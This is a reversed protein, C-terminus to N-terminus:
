KKIKIEVETNCTLRIVEIIENLEARDFNASLLCDDTGKKLSLEETYYTNLIEVVENLPSQNFSFVGTKWALHNQNSVKSLSFSNEDILLEDGAELNLVKDPELKSQVSVRGTVVSVKTRENLSNVNFSTGLVRIIANKTEVIFPKSTDRAIDFFAEGQLSVTRENGTFVEPFALETHSNLSVFSGDILSIETKDTYFHADMQALDSGNNSTVYYTGLAAFVAIAAIAAVRRYIRSRGISKNRRTEMKNLAALSNFDKVKFEKKSLWLQQYMHYAQPNEERFIAVEAEEPESSTGEFHNALQKHLRDMDIKNSVLRM